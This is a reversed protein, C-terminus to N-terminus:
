IELGDKMEAELNVIAKGGEVALQCQFFLFTVGQALSHSDRSSVARVTVPSLSPSLADIELTVETSPSTSSPCLFDLYTNEAHHMSSDCMNGRCEVKQRKISGAGNFLSNLNSVIKSQSTRMFHTPVVLAPPPTLPDRVM